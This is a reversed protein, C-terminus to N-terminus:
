IHWCHEKYRTELETNSAHTLWSYDQDVVPNDLAARTTALATYMDAPPTTYEDAPPVTNLNKLTNFLTNTM